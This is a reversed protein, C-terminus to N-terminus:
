VIYHFVRILSGHLRSLSTAHARHQDYGSVRDAAAADDATYVIRRRLYRGSYM